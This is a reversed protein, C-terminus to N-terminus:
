SRGLIMSFNIHLLENKTFKCAQQSMAPLKVLLDVGECTNKLLMRLGEMIGGIYQSLGGEGILNQLAVGWTRLM